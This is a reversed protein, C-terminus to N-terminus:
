SRPKTMIVDTLLCFSTKREIFDDLMMRSLEAAVGSVADLSDFWLEGIGSYGFGPPAPAVLINQVYRRVVASLPSEGCIRQGHSEHWRSVFDPPSIDDRRRLFQLLVVITDDGDRIINEACFMSFYESTTAFFRKEDAQIFDQKLFQAVFPISALHRLSFLGAADYEDSLAEINLERPRVACYTATLFEARMSPPAGLKRHELWREVFQQRSLRPNRQGLYLWKGNM